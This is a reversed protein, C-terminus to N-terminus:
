RSKVNCIRKYKNYLSYLCMFAPAEVIQNVGLNGLGLITYVVNCANFLYKTFAYITKNCKLVSCLKDTTLFLKVATKQAHYSVGTIGASQSALAGSALLKLGAQDVHDFRMEVLFLFFNALCPPM